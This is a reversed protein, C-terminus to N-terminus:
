KAAMENQVMVWLKGMDEETAADGHIQINSLEAEIKAFEEDTFNVDAAGFNEVMREEKRGGPIPVLFDYKHLMWALSIQAPTANKKDASQQLLDVLPQNALVNEKEFRPAVRRADFGVYEAEAKIKGTLLGGALPSYAVFGIGLEKCVPLVDSEYHRAMISYNSQVATLPTVTHAKRIEEATAESQGWNLIKGEKIFEGMCWAIDEVPIDKNVRHQYYLDIHDTGLRKLSNELRNRLGEMLRERSNGEWDKQFLFKTAIVVQNRISKLAEGVLEENAGMDYMDATDFFTCGQDYAYRILKIAEEKGPTAGYGMSLGMCGYGIASVELDRLKRTKM